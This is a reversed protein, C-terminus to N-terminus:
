PWFMRSQHTFGLSGAMGSPGTSAHDPELASLLAFRVEIRNNLHVQSFGKGSRSIRLMSKTESLAGEAGNRRAMVASHAFLHLLPIRPSTRCAKTWFFSWYEMVGASWTNKVKGTVKGGHNPLLSTCSRAPAGSWRRDSISNFTPLQFNFTPLQFNFTPLHVNFTWREVDLQGLRPCPQGREPKTSLRWSKLIACQSWSSGPLHPAPTRARSNVLRGAPHEHQRRSAAAVRLRSPQAVRSM